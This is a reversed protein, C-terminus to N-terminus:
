HLEAYPITQETKIIPPAQYPQRKRSWVPSDGGDADIALPDIAYPKVPQRGIQRIGDGTPPEVPRGTLEAELEKWSKKPNHFSM